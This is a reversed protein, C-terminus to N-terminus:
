SKLAIRFENITKKKYFTFFPTFEKNLRFFGHNIKGESYTYANGVTKDNRMLELAEKDTTCHRVVNLAIKNTTQKENGWEIKYIIHTPNESFSEIYHNNIM